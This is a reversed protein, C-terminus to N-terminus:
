ENQRHAVARSTRRKKYDSRTESGVLAVGCNGEFSVRGLFIQEDVLVRFFKSFVRTSWVQASSLINQQHILPGGVERLSDYTCAMPILDLQCNDQM